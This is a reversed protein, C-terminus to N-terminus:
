RGTLSPRISRLDGRVAAERPIELSTKRLDEVTRRVSIGALEGSCPMTVKPGQSEYSCFESGVM